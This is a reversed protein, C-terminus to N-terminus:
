ATIINCVKECTLLTVHTTQMCAYIVSCQLLISHSQTCLMLLIRLGIYTRLQDLIQLSINAGINNSVRHIDISNLTGHTCRKKWFVIGCAYSRIMIIRMLCRSPFTNPAVIKDHTPQFFKDNDAQCASVNIKMLLCIFNCLNPHAPSYM